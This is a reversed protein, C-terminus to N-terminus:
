RAVDYLESVRKFTEDKGAISVYGSNGESECHGRFIDERYTNKTGDFISKDGTLSFLQNEFDLRLDHWHRVLEHCHDQNVINLPLDYKSDEPGRQRPKKRNGRSVCQWPKRCQTYHVSYIKDFETVM